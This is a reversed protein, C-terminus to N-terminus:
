RSTWKLFKRWYKEIGADEVQDRMQTWKETERNTNCTMGIEAGEM